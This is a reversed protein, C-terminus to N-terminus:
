RGISEIINRRTISWSPLFGAVVSTVILSVISQVVTSIEVVPILPGPPFPVPNQILYSIIVYLIVGGILMASFTYFLSQMIYSGIIVGESVGIAKLVGIQSKRNLTNIYIVMFLVVIAIILSVITSVITLLSFSEVVDGIIGDLTEESTKIDDKVGSNYLEQKLEDNTRSKDSRILITNAKDSQGLVLEAERKSVIAFQDSIFSGGTYIGKIRYERVVGNRYTLTVRDGVQAGRLTGTLEDDEEDGAINNLGIVIENDDNSNVFEGQVLNNAFVTVENEDDPNVGLVVAAAYTNDKSITASMEYRASAGSVGTTSKIKKLVSDAQNIYSKEGIPEVIIDGVAYEISARSFVEGIGTIISPLFILNIVILSMITITLLTTRLNVRALARISLFVSVRAKELM